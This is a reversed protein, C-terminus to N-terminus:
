IIFTDGIKAFSINTFEQRVNNERLMLSHDGLEPSHHTIVLKKIDRDRFFRVGDQWTGHGWGTHDIVDNDDYMGDFFLLESGDSIDAPLTTARECDFLFTVKKGNLSLTIVCGNDPHDSNYFVANINQNLAYESGVDIDITEIKNIDVPWYPHNMFKKLTNIGNNWASFHGFFRIKANEPFHSMLLGLIHDYHVHTLLIDIQSCGELYNVANKLGTGCDVIVAYDDKRVIYCSTEGGYESFRTGSVPFSGRCGCVRVAYGFTDRPVVINENLDDAFGRIRYIDIPKNKGKFFLGSEVPELEVRSQVMKAASNSILIEGGAAFTEIRSAINVADGIITFDHMNNSGIDGFIVEGFAIGASFNLETSFDKYIQESKRVMDKKLELVAEVANLVCNSNEDDLWYAMVCDGIYKDIIGDTSHIYEGAMTFFLNLFKAIDDQSM